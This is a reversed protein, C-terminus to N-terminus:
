LTKLGEYSEIRLPKANLEPKFFIKGDISWAKGNNYKKRVKRVEKFLEARWGTLNENIYTKDPGLDQSSINRLHLRAKYLM